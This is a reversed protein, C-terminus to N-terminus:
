PGVADGNGIFFDASRFCFMSCGVDFMWCGAVLMSCRVDFMWCGVVVVVRERCVSGHCTHKSECTWSQSAARFVWRGVLHCGAAPVPREGSHWRIEAGNHLWAPPLFPRASQRCQKYPM